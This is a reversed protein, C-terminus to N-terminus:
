FFLLHDGLLQNMLASTLVPEEYDLYCDVPPLYSVVGCSYQDGETLDAWVTILASGWCIVRGVQGFQCM